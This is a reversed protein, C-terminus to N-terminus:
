EMEFTHLALVGIPCLVLLVIWNSRLFVGILHSPHHLDNCDYYM